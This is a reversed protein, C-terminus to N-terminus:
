GCYKNQKRKRAYIIKEVLIKLLSLIVMLLNFIIRIEFFAKYHSENERLILRSDLNFYPKKNSMFWRLFSLFYSYLFSIEFPLLIKDKIGAEFYAKLSIIHYDKLPEINKKVNLLSNYKIIVAKKKTLHVCIGDNLFEVYGRIIKIFGYVYLSYSLKKDESTGWVRIKFYIPFFLFIFIGIAILVKGNV